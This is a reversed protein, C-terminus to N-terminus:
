AARDDPHSPLPATWVLRTGGGSGDVTFTGGAQAARSELNRIGSSRTLVDPIGVGDDSVEIVPSDGASIIISLEGAHSHRVANATAERVVAQAHGALYPPVDDIPGSMRVSTRLAAHGTMANITEGLAGRVSPV